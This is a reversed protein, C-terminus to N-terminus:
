HGDNFHGKSPLPAPIRDETQKSSMDAASTAEGNIRRKDWLGAAHRGGAIWLALFFFFVTPM